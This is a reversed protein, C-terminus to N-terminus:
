FRVTASAGFTRPAGFVATAYGFAQFQTNRATIYEKDFMNRIWFQASIPSGMVNEWNMSASAIFYSDLQNFQQGFSANYDPFINTQTIKSTYYGSITTTVKGSAPDIPWEYTAALNLQHKPTQAPTAGSLDTPPVLTAGTLGDANGGLGPLVFEKFKSKIYNYSADLTLNEVPSVRMEFDLGYVNQKAANLVGYGSFGDDYNVNVNVQKNTTRGRYLAINTRVPRDGISWDAKLGAEIMTTKEPDFFPVERITFNTGGALYGHSIKAYALVKSSFKNTVVFNWSPARFSKGRQGICSTLDKDTYFLLAAANCPTQADPLFNFGYNPLVGTAQSVSVRSSVRDWNYRVGGSIGLSDTIDFESNLYVSKSNFKKKEFNYIDIVLPLSFGFAGSLFLSQGVNANIGETKDNLLFYGGLSTRLRGDLATHRLTIDDTWQNTKTDKLVNVLALSVGATDESTTTHDRRFGVVNRLTLNDALEINVRHELGFLKARGYLDKTMGSPDAGVYITKRTGLRAGLTALDIGFGADPRFALPIGGTPSEDRDYYDLILVSDIPGSNLSMTGRLSYHNEDSFDKPAGGAAILNKVYGDRKVYNGAFRFGLVDNVPINIMGEFEHRNYNGYGAKVYGEFKDTPLNTRVTITGGTTNTGFQTGQPGKLVEVTSVDYFANMIGVTSMLPVDNLYLAVGGDVGLETATGRIAFIPVGGTSNNSVTLGPTVTQLDQATLVVREQIQQGSFAAVTIPLSQANEGVKRATVVIDGLENGAGTAAASDSAPAQDQAAAPMALFAASIAAWSVAAARNVKFKM